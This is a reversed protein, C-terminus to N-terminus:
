PGPAFGDETDGKSKYQGTRSTGSRYNYLEIVRTLEVLGIRGDRNSDASHLATSRVVLPDPKAMTQSQAGAAQSAVLAVIVQDATTGVPVSLTYTFTIPSAPVSPWSWELLDGREDAPRAVGESGGSGIYKWGTPLLTSWSISSPATGTYTITNTVTVAGGGSYGPGMVAHTVALPSTASVAVTAAASDVAIGGADTVRVWYNTSESLTPTTFLAASAGSIPTTTM